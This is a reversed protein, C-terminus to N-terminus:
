VGEMQGQGCEGDKSGIYHVKNLKTLKSFLKNIYNQKKNIRGEGKGQCAGQRQPLPLM